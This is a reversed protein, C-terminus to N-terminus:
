SMTFSASAYSVSSERMSKCQNSQAYNLFKLSMTRGNQTKLTHIANLLVAIPHRGCITNGHTKLYSRFGSPDLNEIIQMGMRDLTEISQYIQCEPKSSDNYIYKYSFRHGWHCFDSSIVFLNEPEALYKSFLQGYMKEGNEQLSGVLIPVITFEGQKSQMAKAIYPLQMEISHEEEDTRLEMLDFHGTKHLEETVKIDVVLNYLPTEYTKCRTVACGPLHMHHSPGLIFIRKINTPDIQKYAHAGCAGCYSYGAHPSIIARAPGHHSSEADNLWAGLEDSLCRESNSYWSGAHRARRVSM